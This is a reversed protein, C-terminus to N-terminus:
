AAPEKSAKQQRTQANHAQRCPDCPAEGRRRHALAGGTSGHVIPALPQGLARGGAGPRTGGHQPDLDVGGWLGTAEGRDLAGALCATSYRCTACLAQAQEVRRRRGQPKECPPAFFLGTAGRCPADDQWTM